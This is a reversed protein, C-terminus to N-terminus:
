VEDAGNGQFGLEPSPPQGADGTTETRSHACSPSPKQEGALGAQGARDGKGIGWKPSGEGARKRLSGLPAQVM